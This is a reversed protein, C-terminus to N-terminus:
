GGAGAGVANALAHEGGLYQKPDALFRKRCEALCFYYTQGRFEAQAPAYVRNIRMNCVPDTVLNEAQYQNLTELRLYADLFSTIKEDAWGAVQDDTVRDLPLITQDQGNFQFFVPLISLKYLLWVNEWQGDRSVSLELKTNAPFRPTKKFTAVCTHRNLTDVPALEANDFQRVLIEMRPRIVDRVFRDAIAEYRRHREDMEHMREAHHNHQSLCLEQHAALKEKIQRELQNLDAM